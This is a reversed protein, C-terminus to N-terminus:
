KAKVVLATQDDFVRAGAAHNKVDQFIQHILEAAGLAGHQEILQALRQRGYDQGFHDRSDSIGDSTFVVADGPALALAVQEYETDGLLGLPIGVVRQEAARRRSLLIPLPMGANAVVLERSKPHWRACLLTLYSSDVKRELLALNLARLLTAPLTHQQALLRLLGSVLAAYLAAAAGKGSVDGVVIGLGKDSFAVFDYLDGGIERAPEYHVAIELDELKPCEAPLLHQQLQRAAEMDRELRAENKTVRQYLRANEIATAIQPALLSLTRVHDETFYNLQESELDLVGILRNRAVLPVAVESRIGENSAIYRPDKSTDPALVPLKSEAAAGVIGRGLPINDMHIRKDYRISMYDKLMAEAPELLLISLADYNILQRVQESIKRLLPDLDLISSFEQAIASLTRLTRNQTVVRRYLRANDIAMGVRAAILEVIGLEQETFANLRTSQIDIVGVLKGRAVMPVALESRVADLANLYRPDRRVDNVLVPERSAAAAGTIGEGIKIRLHEVVEQRHGIAFRMRMSAGKDTVLLIAFIEYDIVKKILKAVAPLLKELDLTQSSAESVELLFDLLDSRQQLLAPRSTM